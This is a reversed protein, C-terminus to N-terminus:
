REVLKGDDGTVLAASFGSFFCLFFSSFPLLFVRFLQLVPTILSVRPPHPWVLTHM